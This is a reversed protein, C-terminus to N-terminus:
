NWSSLDRGLWVALEENAPAFAQRLKDRVRPDMPPPSATPRTLLRAAARRARASLRKRIWPNAILRILTESRAQRFTNEPRALNAPVIPEVGIHRFVTAATDPPSSRLDDLLLVLLQERPYHELVRKLQDIYRSFGLYNPWVDWDPARLEEDVVETFIRREIGYYRTHLYQSYAREVPDRLIAILRARPLLAAMREPARHEFLYTPTAEGTARHGAAGEFFSRYWDPGRAWNQDRDFFHIEKTRSMFVDPHEDLHTWLSSTGSKPAGIILFTPQAGPGEAGRQSGM